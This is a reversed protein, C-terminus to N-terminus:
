RRTGSNRVRGSCLATAIGIVLFIRRLNSGVWSRSLIWYFFRKDLGHTMMAKALIFASIFLFIMPNAFSSFAQSETVVGTVVAPTLGEIPAILVAVALIPGAILGFTRRKRDFAQEAEHIFDTDNFKAM